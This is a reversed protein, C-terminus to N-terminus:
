RLTRLYAILAAIDARDHKRAFSPMEGKIGRTVVIAIRRDSVALGHLDPGEDGRADAGHCHACSHLFLMRGNREAATGEVPPLVNPTVPGAPGHLVRAGGGAAALASLSILGSIWATRVVRM